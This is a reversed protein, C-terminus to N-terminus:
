VLITERQELCKMYTYSRIIKLKEKICIDGKGIWCMLLEEIVRVENDNLM